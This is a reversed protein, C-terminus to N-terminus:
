LEGVLQELLDRAEQLAEIEDDNSEGEVMEYTNEVVARATLLAAHQIFPIRLIEGAPYLDARPKEAYDFAWKGQFVAHAIERAAERSPAEIVAYGKGHMGTPHQEEPHGPTEKYQVGFTIYTEVTEIIKSM